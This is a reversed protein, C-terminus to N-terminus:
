LNKNKEEDNLRKNALLTERIFPEAKIGLRKLAFSTVEAFFPASVAGGYIQGVPDDVMVLTAIEPRDAPAFGVFYAIRGKRGPKIKLGLKQATGTKGAVKIYPIRANKGTGKEVVSVLMNRLISATQEKIVREGEKTEKNLEIKPIVRIGNNAITAYALVLQIPTVRVEQGFAICPASLDSWPPVRNPIGEPRRVLGASEGKFNLETVSGFGFSRIYNYFTKKPIAMGIRGAGCNSSYTLVEEISYFTKHPPHDDNITHGAISIPTVLIEDNECKVGCDLAAAITIAKFTSGPEFSDLIAINRWKSVSDPKINNPDFTPRVGLALIEGTKVRLVIICAQVPDYNEVINDLAEEVKYQIAEDITLSISDPEFIIDDVSEIPYLRTKKGIRLVVYERQGKNLRKEWEEELGCLGGDIGVTGILNSAFSGKPYFRGWERLISVGKFKEAIKLAEKEKDDDLKRALWIFNKRDKLREYITQAKEQTLKELEHCLQHLNDIENPKFACLSVKEVSAALLSGNRDTLETRPLDMKVFGQAQELAEKEYYEHRIIQLYFLRLIIILSFCLSFFLLLITRKKFLEKRM